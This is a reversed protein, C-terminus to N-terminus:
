LTVLSEYIYSYKCCTTWRKNVFFEFDKLINELKFDTYIEPRNKLPKKYIKLKVGLNKYIEINQRFYQTRAM